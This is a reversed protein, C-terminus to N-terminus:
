HRTNSIMQMLILLPLCQKFKFPMSIQNISTCSCSLWIKWIYIYILSKHRHHEWRWKLKATYIYIYINFSILYFFWRKIDHCCFGNKMLSMLLNYIVRTWQSQVSPVRVSIKLNVMKKLKDLPYKRISKLIMYTSIFQFNNFWKTGHDM